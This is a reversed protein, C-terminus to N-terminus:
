GAGELARRTLTRVLARRYDATNNIDEMPDIADGAIQAAAAFAEPGPAQGVLAAEADGIRRPFPEAGGVAVRAEAVRGAETRYTALVMAIAFDGPRRSYEAFGGRTGEALLPLEVATVMEDAQLDTTMVGQFYAGAEIRRVGRMSQAVIRGDLGAVACCWESAPDANAVSGCFTGRVRIPHHAVHRVVRRLLAGTPGPIRRGDEFAAHRVCAGIRVRGSEVAIESLAAIGNIDILHAPQAMRFAMTPVLSQGGALIRGDEAAFQALLTVAEDISGPAHYTFRAPKMRASASSRGAGM